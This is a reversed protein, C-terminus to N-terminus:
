AAEVRRNYDITEKTDTTDWTPIGDPPNLRKMVSCFSDAKISVPQAKVPPKPASECGATFAAIVGFLAINGLNRPLGNSIMPSGEAVQMGSVCRLDEAAGGNGNTNSWH